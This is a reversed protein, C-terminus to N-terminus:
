KEPSSDLVERNFTMGTLTLTLGQTGGWRAEGLRLGWVFFYFCCHERTPAINGLM